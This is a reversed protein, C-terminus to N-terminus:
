DPLDIRYLSGGIDILIYHSAGKTQQMESEALAVLPLPTSQASFVFHMQEQTLAVKDTIQVDQALAPLSTALAFVAFITKFSKM